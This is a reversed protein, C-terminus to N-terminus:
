PAPSSYPGAKVRIGTTPRIGREGCSPFNSAAMRAVELISCLVIL